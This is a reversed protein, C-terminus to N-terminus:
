VWAHLMVPAGHQAAIGKIRFRYRSSLGRLLAMMRDAHSPDHYTTIAIRPTWRAITERAGELAALDQGELDAKIYSIEIGRDAFLHDITEVNIEFKGHPDLRARLGDGQMRAGAVHSSLAYPLLDINGVPAFTEHLCRLWLPLPEIAFVKAARGAADLAFLGEAAGCDLVVDGPLVRTEPVEYYHWDSPDFHEVMVMKFGRLDAAKPWVLPHVV